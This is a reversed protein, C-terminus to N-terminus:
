VKDVLGEKEACSVDEVETQEVKDTDAADEADDARVKVCVADGMDVSVSDRLAEIVDLTQAETVAVAVSLAEGV